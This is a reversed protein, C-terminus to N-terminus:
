SKSGDMNHQNSKKIQTPRKVRPFNNTHIPIYKKDNHNKNASLSPWVPYGIRFCKENSMLQQFETFCDSVATKYCVECNNTIGLIQNKVTIIWTLPHRNHDQQHNFM